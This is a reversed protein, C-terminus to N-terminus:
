RFRRVARSLTGIAWNLCKEVDTEAVQVYLTYGAPCDEAECIAIEQGFKEQYTSTEVNYIIIEEMSYYHKVLCGIVCARDPLIDGNQECRNPCDPFDHEGIWYGQYTQTWEEYHRRIWEEWMWERWPNNWGQIPDTELWIRSDDEVLEPLYLGDKPELSSNTVTTAPTETLTVQDWTICGTLVFELIVILAIIVVINLASKGM